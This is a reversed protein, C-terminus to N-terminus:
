VINPRKGIIDEGPPLHLIHYQWWFPFSTRLIIFLLLLFFITPKNVHDIFLCFIAVDTYFISSLSTCLCCCFWCWLATYLAYVFCAVVVSYAVQKCKYLYRSLLFMRRWRCENSQKGYSISLLVSCAFSLESPIWDTKYSSM